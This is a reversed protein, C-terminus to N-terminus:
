ELYFTGSNIVTGDLETVDVKWKGRLGSTM